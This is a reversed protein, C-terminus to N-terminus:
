RESWVYPINKSDQPLKEGEQPDHPIDAYNCILAAQSGQCAFGYWIGPPIILLDYKDPRGLELEVLNGRTDSQIRDDYMVIKIKGCPVAFHQTQAKHRKWAKIKDPYIESFYIEGFSKIAGFGCFNEALMKLVPGNETMIIKLPCLFVGNIGTEQM